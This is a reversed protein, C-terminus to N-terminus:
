WDSLRPSPLHYIWVHEKSSVTEFEGKICEPGEDSMVLKTVYHGM